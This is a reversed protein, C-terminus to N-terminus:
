DVAVCFVTDMENYQIRTYVRVCVSSHLCYVQEDAVARSLEAARQMCLVLSYTIIYKQYLNENFIRVCIDPLRIVIVAFAHLSLASHM